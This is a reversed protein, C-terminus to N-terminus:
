RTKDKKDSYNVGMTEPLDYAKPHLYKGRQEVPKEEEVPIRNREAFRDQRIGTVQWSVKLGPEGGAIEFGNGSIERAIYLNPGPQGIPTLQYRFDRNLAEFWEPLDVRAEGNGDLVVNGNYVNMMDPSEVFSHYLYKNEPDFPHDIKFGGGGKTLFGTVEVTGQFHGAKTGYGYIAPSTGYNVAWVAGWNNGKSVNAYARLGDGDGTQNDFSAGYYPSSAIMRMGGSSRVSFENEMSSSFDGDTSDAWVFSGSHNARAKRGAAFSFNGQATNDYGGPVTSWKGTAENSYGGAVTAELNGAINAQGGGVTAQNASAQNLWGGGVFARDGDATSQEGGSVTARSGSAINSSGGGVFAADGDATNQNGGAVTARDGSAINFGGGGVTAYGGSARNTSGGGVTCMGSDATNYIGGGVTAYSAAARNGYGGNVTSSLSNQGSTGTTCIVGLNVMTHANFGYVVNNAAGRAIGWYDNTYLVSNDVHWNSGSGPAATLASDAVMSRYAYGVSTLRIRPMVEGGVEVELWYSKDFALNLATSKGLTVNFLGNDVDVGNQTESWQLTGSGTTDDYIKFTLNRAGDIPIGGADTLMGQYNILPPFAPPTTASDAFVLVPILVAGAILLISLRKM